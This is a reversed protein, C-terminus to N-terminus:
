LASVAIGSALFKMCGPPMYEAYCKSLSRAQLPWALSMHACRFRGFLKPEKEAWARQQKFEPIKSIMNKDYDRMHFHMAPILITDASPLGGVPHVRGNAMGDVYASLMGDCPAVEGTSVTGQGVTQHWLRHRHMAAVRTGQVDRTWGGAHYDSKCFAFVPFPGRYQAMRSADPKPIREPPLTRNAM